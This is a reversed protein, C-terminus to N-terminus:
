GSTVKTWRCVRAEALNVLEYLTVGLLAMTLVGAFMESYQIRAWADMIVYGLGNTGAVTESFFLVAIAHGISLRLATFIGPLSGPVVVHRFVQWRDAGLSRVSLVSAAPIARSADRATVIIQFSVILTILAVKSTDGTGMLVLFVPLFTIKPVPYTLFVIPAVFADLRPSRGLVLGLPMAIGVGIALATLVRRVSIVLHPLLEDAFGSAFDRLADAPVPLAPSDIALALLHWAVLVFVVAGAYGAVRRVAGSGALRGSM